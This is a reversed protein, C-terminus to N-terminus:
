DSTPPPFTIHVVEDKKGLDEYAKGKYFIRVGSGNGIKLRIKERGQCPFREGEKMLRSFPPEQDLEIQVWTEQIAQLIVEVSTKLPPISNKNKEKVAEAAIATLGRDTSVSDEPPGKESIDLTKRLEEKKIEEETPGPIRIARVREEKNENGPQLFIWLLILMFFMAAVIYISRRRIDGSGELMQDQTLDGKAKLAVQYRIIVDEQDLNICQAYQKLFGITFIPAPLFHYQDEELARLYSLSIKTAQEIEELSIKREQRHKKLYKGLTDM